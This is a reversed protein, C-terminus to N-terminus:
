TTVKFIVDMYAVEDNILNRSEDYETIIATLVANGGQRFGMDNTVNRALALTAESGAVLSFIANFTPGLVTAYIDFVKELGLPLNEITSVFEGGEGIGVLYSTLIALVVGFIIVAGFISGLSSGRKDWIM